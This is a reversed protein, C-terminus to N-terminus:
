LYQFDMTNKLGPIGYYAHVLDGKVCIRRGLLGPNDVLNLAERVDGAPLQVSLCVNRDTTSSRPGLLINTRSEFPYEFSASSSTLDGGVVYGCVWVGEKASSERAEAVSLADSIDVGADEDGIICDVDSWVRSTDISISMGSGEDPRAQPVSVRVSLMDRPKLDRVLLVEDTSGSSMVLSLTGPSFYATRKETYSYMLKGSASKLLLVADPCHVLFSSSIDLRVGANLQRCILKLRGVGEAPVFVCQEDGFQPADFAPCPFESSIVKVEYTGSALTMSEPCDGYKGEYIVKGSAESVRLIFDSTDPLNPYAKTLHEGGRIFSIELRGYGSTPSEGLRDCSVTLFAALLAVLACICSNRKM